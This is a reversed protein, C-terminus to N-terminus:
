ETRDKGCDRSGNQFLKEDLRHHLHAAYSVNGRYVDSLHKEIRDRDNQHDNERDENREHGQELDRSQEMGKRNGLHSSLGIQGAHEDRAKLSAYLRKVRLVPQQDDKNEDKERQRFEQRKGTRGKLEDQRTEDALSDIVRASKVDKIVDNINGKDKEQGNVDKRYVAENQLLFREKLAAFSGSFELVSM